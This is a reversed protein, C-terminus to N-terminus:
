WDLNAKGKAVANILALDLATLKGDGNVDATIKGVESITAEAKELVFDRLVSVDNSDVIGDCDVDGSVVFQIDTAGVETVFSYGNATKTAEATVYANGDKYVVKCGATGESVTVEIVRGLVTVNEKSIPAAAPIKIETDKNILPTTMRGQSDFYCTTEKDVYGHGRSVTVKFDM